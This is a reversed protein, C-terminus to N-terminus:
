EEEKGTLMPVFRVPDYETMVMNDVQKEVVTLVQSFDNGLPIVLRAGVGLQEVLAVPLTKAAATVIIGDYPACEPWGLYGDGYRVTVNHFPKLRLKATLFLPKIREITFVQDSCQALVAAQYGTGTGIELVANLPRGQRLLETMRAVVYPQSITQGHAFPLASDDYAEQSWGEAVFAERHVDHIAQLVETDRIGKDKLTQILQDVTQMQKNNGPSGQLNTLLKVNYRKIM